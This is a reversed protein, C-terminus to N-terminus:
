RTRISVRPERKEKRRTCGGGGKCKERKKGRVHGTELTIIHACHSIRDQTGHGKKEGKEAYRKKEGGSGIKGKEIKTGGGRGCGRVGLRSRYSYNTKKSRPVTSKLTRKRREQLWFIRRRKHGTQLPRGDGSGVCTGPISIRGRGSELAKNGKKKGNKKV